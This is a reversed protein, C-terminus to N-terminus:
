VLRVCMRVMTKLLIRSTTSSIFMRRLLSIKRIIVNRFSTNLIITYTKNLSYVKVSPLQEPLQLMRELLLTPFNKCRPKSSNWLNFFYFLFIELKMIQLLVKLSTHNIIIIIKLRKKFCSVKNKEIFKVLKM